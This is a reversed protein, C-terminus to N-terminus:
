APAPADRRRVLRDTFELKAIVPPSLVFPYPDDTGLSRNLENLTVSLEMWELIWGPRNADTPRVLGVAEATELADVIHLYHAFTEAWDEHPHAAAYASVHQEPWDSPVGAAYYAQIAAAYDSLEDGFLDRFEALTVPDAVLYSFYYHGTEHRLHGLLTRYREWMQERVAYRSVDDAEALNITVTGAVHGTMVFPELVDPNRRRDELFRFRLGSAAGPAHLPLGVSRLTYLLRRKAQEMRSWLMRNGPVDLHPIVENLRCATCYSHTDEERLLWNCVNHQRRNECHRYRAGSADILLMDDAPDLPKLDQSVPDFGLTVGCSLCRTNDFFVRQGCRCTFRRM